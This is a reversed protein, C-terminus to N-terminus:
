QYPAEGVLVGICRVPRVGVAEFVDGRIARLM